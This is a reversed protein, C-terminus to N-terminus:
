ALSIQFIGDIEVAVGLPLSVVGVASRSHQGRSGLLEVLFDSAGSIVAPQDCFEPTSNVFGTLKIIRSLRNLEGGCAARVQALLNIACVRAAQRGAEVDLSDGLRGVFKEDGCVSIQGSVYVMECCMVYPVYTSVPRPAQPLTVGLSKLRQEIDQM